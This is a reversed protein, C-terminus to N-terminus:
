MFTRNASLAKLVKIKNATQDDLTWTKKMHRNCFILLGAIQVLHSKDSHNLTSGTPMAGRKLFFLILLSLKQRMWKRNTIKKRDKCILSAVCM